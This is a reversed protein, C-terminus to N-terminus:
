LGRGDQYSRWLKDLKTRRLNYIFPLVEPASEVAADYDLLCLIIDNTSSQSAALRQCVSQAKRSASEHLWLSGLVDGTLIFLVFSLAIRAVNLELTDDAKGLIFLVAVACIALSLGIFWRIVTASDEQLRATYFASEELMEGLRNWGTSAKTEYYEPNLHAQAEEESVRFRLQLDRLTAPSIGGLGNAVLGARRAAQAADRMGDYYRKLLWWLITMAAGAMALYYLLREPAILISLAGVFTVTLQISVMWIRTKSARAFHASQYATLLNPTM